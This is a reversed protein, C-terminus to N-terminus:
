FILMNRDFTVPQIYSSSGTVLVLFHSRVGSLAERYLEFPIALFGGQFIVNILLIRCNMVKIFFNLNLCFHFTDYMILNIQQSIM